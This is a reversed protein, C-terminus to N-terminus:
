AKKEGSKKGWKWFKLSEVITGRVRGGVCDIVTNTVVVTLEKVMRKIKEEDVENTMDKLQTALKIFEATAVEAVRPAVVETVLLFAIGIALLLAGLFWLPLLRIQRKLKSDKMDM